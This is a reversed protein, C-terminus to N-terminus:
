GTWGREFLASSHSFSFFPLAPARQVRMAGYARHVFGFVLPCRLRISSFVSVLQYSIYATKPIAIVIRVISINIASCTYKELCSQHDFLTFFLLYLCGRAPPCFLLCALFVRLVSWCFSFAASFRSVGLRQIAGDTQVLCPRTGTKSERVLVVDVFVSLAPNNMRLESLRRSRTRAAPM